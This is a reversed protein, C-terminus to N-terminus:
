DIKRASKTKKFRNPPLKHIFNPIEIIKNDVTTFLVHGNKDIIVLYDDQNTISVAEINTKTFEHYEHKVELGFEKYYNMGAIHLYDDICITYDEM